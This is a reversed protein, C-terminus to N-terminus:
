AVMENRVSDLFVSTVQQMKEIAQEISGVAVSVTHSSSQTSKAGESVGLINHSVDQTGVSAEQVNRAIEDTAARQEEVASAVNSAMESVTNISGRISRMAESAEGTQNQVAGIQKGIQETAKATQTALSKVESAVVAFGRGAEGARAAEITANLALLNTQEAIDNILEIVKGIEGSSEALRDVVTESSTAVDVAEQLRTASMDMQRAIESISHGLEETAAAVTEVNVSSEEAASSAAASKESTTNATNVLLEATESLNATASSVVTLVEQIGGDFQSILRELTRVKEERAQMEAEQKARAQEQALREEEQRRREAEEERRRAEEAEEQLRQREIGNEKFTNVAKAMDGIEDEFGMGPVDVSYDRDALALMTTTMNRIPLAIWNIFLLAAGVAVVVILINSVISAVKVSLIADASSARAVASMKEAVAEFAHQDELVASFLDGPEGTAEIARAEDVTLYNSMLRLQRGAYETQWQESKQTIERTLALLEPVDAVEGRLKTASAQYLKQEAEYVTVAERDSAVLLYLMAQRQKNISDAMETYTTLIKQIQVSHEQADQASRMKVFTVTSALLTIAILIAFTAIVKTPIRSKKIFSLM